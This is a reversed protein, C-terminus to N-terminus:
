RDLEDLVEAKLIEEFYEKIESYKEEQVNIYPYITFLKQPEGGKIDIIYVNSLEGNAMFEFSVCHETKQAIKMTLEFLERIQKEKEQM